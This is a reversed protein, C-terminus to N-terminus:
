SYRRTNWTDNSLFIAMEIADLVPWLDAELPPFEGSIAPSSTPSKPPLFFPYKNAIRNRHFPFGNSFDPLAGIGVPGRARRAARYPALVKKDKKRISTKM